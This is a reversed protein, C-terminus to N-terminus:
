SILPKYSFKAVGRYYSFYHTKINIKLKVLNEKKLLIRIELFKGLKLRIMQSSMPIILQYVKAYM